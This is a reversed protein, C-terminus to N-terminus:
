LTLIMFVTGFSEPAFISEEGKGCCAEIGKSAAIEVFKRSPEVGKEIGLAQAFRGSGTGIELWPKALHPLLPRFAEVEIDFILKGAEDFWRDYEEALEEFPSLTEDM